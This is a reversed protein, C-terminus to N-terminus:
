PQISFLDMNLNYKTLRRIHRPWDGRNEATGTFAGDRSWPERKNTSYPDKPFCQMM